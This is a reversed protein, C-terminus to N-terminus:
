LRRCVRSRRQPGPLTPFNNASTIKLHSM